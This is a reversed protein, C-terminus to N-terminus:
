VLLYIQHILIHLYSHVTCCFTEDWLDVVPTHYLVGSTLLVEHGSGHLCCSGGVARSHVGASLGICIVNFYVFQLPTFLSVTQRLVSSITRENIQLKTVFNTVFADAFHSFTVTVKYRIKNRM